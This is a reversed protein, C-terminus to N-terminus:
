IMTDTETTRLTDICRKIDDYRYGKAAFYRIARDISKKEFDGKLKKEMLPLLTEEEDFDLESLAQEIYEASIGRSQLDRYIRMRGFKKINALDRAKGIAYKLDDLFGYEFLFEVTEDIDEEAAGARILKDCLEKKSHSRFELLCLAKERTQEKTLKQEMIIDYASITSCNDSIWARLKRIKM